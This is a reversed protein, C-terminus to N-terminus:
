DKGVYKEPTSGDRSHIHVRLNVPYHGYHEEVLVKEKDEPSLEFHFRSLLVATIVTLAMQAFRQGICNRSGAAFPLYQFPHKITEGINEQAFRDPFFEEPLYWFDPHRHLAMLSIMVTTNPRMSYGGISCKATCERVLMPEPPHLRMTEKLVQILMTFKSIDEYVVATTHVGHVNMISDVEQQCKEQIEPHTALEYIIWMMTYILNEYGAVMFTLIHDRIQENSLRQYDNGSENLMLMLHLFDNKDPSADTDGDLLSDTASQVRSDPTGSGNSHRLREEITADILAKLRDCAERAARVRSPFFLTWWPFPDILRESVENVLTEFDQAVSESKSKTFFDYGFGSECIIGTILNRIDEDVSVKVSDSIGRDLETKKLRFHWHRVLRRTHLNFVTVMCKLAQSRCLPGLISKFRTYERDDCTYLGDGLLQVLRDWRSDKRFKMYHGTLVNKILEPHAIIVFPTGTISNFAVLNGDGLQPLFMDCVSKAYHRSGQVLSIISSYYNRGWFHNAPGPLQKGCEDFVRSDLIYLMGLVFTLSILICLLLIWLIHPNSTLDESM